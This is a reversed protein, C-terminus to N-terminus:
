VTEVHCHILQLSAGIQHMWGHTKYVIHPIKIRELSDFDVHLGKTWAMLQKYFQAVMLPQSSYVRSQASMLIQMTSSEWIGRLRINFWDTMHLSFAFSFWLMSIQVLLIMSGSYFTKVTKVKQYVSNGNATFGRLTKAYTAANAVANWQQSPMM